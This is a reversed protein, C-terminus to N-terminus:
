SCGVSGLTAFLSSRSGVNVVAETAINVAIHVVNIVNVAVNVSMNVLNVFM